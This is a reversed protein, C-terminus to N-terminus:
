WKESKFTRKRTITRSKRFNILFDWILIFKDFLPYQQPTIGSWKPFQIREVDFKLSPNYKYYM